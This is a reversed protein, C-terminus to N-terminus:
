GRYAERVRPHGNEQSFVICPFKPLAGKQLYSMVWKRQKRGRALRQETGLSRQPRDMTKSVKQTDNVGFTRYFKV